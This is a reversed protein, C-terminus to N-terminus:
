VGVYATRSIDPLHTDDAPKTVDMEWWGSHGYLEAWVHEYPASPDRFAVLVLRISEIGVALGMSCALMAADDCDGYTVGHAVINRIQDGPPELTDADRPDRVFVFRECLFTRIMACYGDYDRDDPIVGVVSRAVYILDEDFQNAIALRRMAEATRM